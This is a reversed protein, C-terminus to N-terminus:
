SRDRATEIVQPLTGRPLYGHPCPPSADSAWWRGATTGTVSATQGAGDKDAPRGTRSAPGAM